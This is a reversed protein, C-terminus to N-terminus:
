SISCLKSKRRYESTIQQYRESNYKKMQRFASLTKPAKDGLVERYREWQRRDSNLRRKYEQIKYYRDLGEKERKNLTGFPRNSQKMTQEINDDYEEIYLSIRHKCNPHITYYISPFVKSLPPFRNDKGSISYVRGQLPMCIPCTEPHESLLVLDCELEKARNLIGLNTAEARSTRGVMEAYWKMNMKRGNKDRIEDINIHSFTNLLEKQFQKNTQGTIIKIGLQELTINRVIDTARRGIYANTNEIDSLLADIALKVEREHFKNFSFMVHKKISELESDASLAGQKYFQRYYEATIKKVGKNLSEIEGQIQKILARIRATSRGQELRKLLIKTLKKRCQLYLNLLRHEYKTM